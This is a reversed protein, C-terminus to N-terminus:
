SKVSVRKIYIEVQTVQLIHSVNKKRQSVSVSGSKLM